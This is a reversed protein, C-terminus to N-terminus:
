TDYIKNFILERLRAPYSLLVRGIKEQILRSEETLKPMKEIQKQIQDWENEHELKQKKLKRIEEIEGDRPHDIKVLLDRLYISKKISLDNPFPGEYMNLFHILMLNNSDEIARDILKELLRKSFSQDIHDLLDCIMDNPFVDVVPIIDDQKIIPYYQRIWPMTHKILAQDKAKLIAHVLHISPFKKILLLLLKELQKEEGFKVAYKRMRTISKESPLCWDVFIENLRMSMIDNINVRAQISSFENLTEYSVDCFPVDLRLDRPEFSDDLFCLLPTYCYVIGPHDDRENCIKGGDNTGWNVEHYGWVIKRVCYFTDFGLDGLQKKIISYQQKANLDNERDNKARIELEEKEEREAQELQRRYAAVKTEIDSM